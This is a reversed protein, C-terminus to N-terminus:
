AGPGAGPGPAPPEAADLELAARTGGGERPALTVEGGLARALGRAVALGLGRGGATGRTTFFPEFARRAGEADLGEGDDEVLLRVRGGDREARVVVQGGRGLPIAEIANQVLQRVIQVLLREQGLAFASGPVLDALKARLGHRARAAAVVAEAV